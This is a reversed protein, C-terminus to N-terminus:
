ELLIIGILAYLFLALISFGASIVTYIFAAKLWGSLDKFKIKEKM